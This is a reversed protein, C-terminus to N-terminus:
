TLPAPTEMADRVRPDRSYIDDRFQLVGDDDVWATWYQLHVAYPRSLRVTRERGARVAQDIQARDWGEVALLHEALGLADEVRICGSSFDRATRDFLDRAPTDHLYVNYRNPFMFKVDGLANTPGPEQRLRFQRNFQAGTMGAWKVSLPDVPRNTAADLLTMRQQMVWRPDQRIRPLQDNQAIGPPVHWYPALVLYTMTGTFVPTQRYNRGVIGRIRRVREGNEVVDVTFAAANVLIHREGPDEPLWRWREMNVELQAIRDEVPVNLAALTQPGVSGVADLGHRAQFARVAGQLEDDFHDDGAWGLLRDRVIPVRPDSAGPELRPGTPVPAWGGDAAVRRLDALVDRMAQYGAMRPRLGDLTEAVAGSAVAEELVPIMDKGRRNALWEPDITEPNIRGHLLHSGLILFADTLMLDVSVRHQLEDPGDSGLLPILSDLATVHYDYPRLGDGEADQIAALLEQGGSTLRPGSLWAPEHDRRHYFDPLAQPSLINQGGARVWGWTFGADLRNRIGDSVLVTDMREVPAEAEEDFYDVVPLVVFEPAQGDDRSGGVDSCAALVLPLLWALAAVSRSCSPM